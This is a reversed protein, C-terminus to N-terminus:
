LFYYNEKDIWANSGQHQLINGATIESTVHFTELIIYMGGYLSWSTKQGVKNM